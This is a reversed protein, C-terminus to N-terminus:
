VGARHRTTGIDQIESEPASFSFPLTSIWGPGSLGAQRAMQWVPGIANASSCGAFLPLRGMRISSLHRHQM